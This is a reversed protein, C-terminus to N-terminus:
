SESPPKRGHPIFFSSVYLERLDPPPPPTINVYDMLHIRFRKNTKKESKEEKIGKKLVDRRKQMKKFIMKLKFKKSMSKYKNKKKRFRLYPNIRPLPPFFLAVRGIRDLPFKIKIYSQCITHSFSFVSCEFQISTTDIKM